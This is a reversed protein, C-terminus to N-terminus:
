SRPLERIVKAPSGAALAYPPVDRTVVSGAGIVAHEGVTVGKLIISRAGIWANDGITVPACRRGLGPWDHEDTDTITVDWGILVWDGITVREEALISVNRNLFSGQGIWIEAGKYLELRCGGFIVVGGTRLRGGRNVIRPKPFGGEWIVPGRYGFHPLLLAGGLISLPPYRRLGTLVRAIRHRHDSARSAFGTGVNM